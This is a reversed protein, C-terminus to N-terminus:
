DADDDDHGGGPLLVCDLSLRGPGLFMLALASMILAFQLFFTTWAPDFTPHNPLFGLVADGKQVAPGIQTLWLAGAMVGAIGLSWLRTLFGLLVGMGGGLETIAVAWALYVPTKGEALKDPWLQMPAKGSADAAPYAAGHLMVALSYLSRVRVPTPFDAATYVKGGQRVAVIRPERSPATAGGPKPEEPKNEKTEPPKTEAPKTEPRKADPAKTPPEVVGMNALTAAEAGSFEMYNSVKGLGAYIFIAGLMLRLFLPAVNTGCGTRLRAM